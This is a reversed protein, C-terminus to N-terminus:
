VEYEKSWYVGFADPGLHNSIVIGMQTVTSETVTAETVKQCEKLFKKAMRDNTTYFGGLIIKDDASFSMEKLTQLVSAISKKQSREAKYRELGGEKNITIIPSIGFLNGVSAIAAPIRGGYALYDLKDVLVYQHMNEVYFEIIETIKASDIDGHKRLYAAVTKATVAAFQGASRTDYVEISLGENDEMYQEAAIKMGQSTGSLAASIHLCIVREFGDEKIKQFVEIADNTSPQSTQPLKKAADIKYFVEVMQSPDTAKEKFSINEFNVSLPVIYFNNEAIETESMYFTSDILIATKNM